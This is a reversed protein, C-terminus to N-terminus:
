VGSWMADIWAKIPFMHGIQILNQIKEGAPGSCPVSRNTRKTNSIADAIHLIRCFHLEDNEAEDPGQYFAITNAIRPPLGWLAILAAGIGAHDEALKEFQAIHLRTTYPDETLGNETYLEAYKKIILLRGIDHLLGITFLTNQDSLSYGLQNAMWRCNRAVEISHDSFLDVNILGNLM